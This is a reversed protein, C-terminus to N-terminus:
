DERKEVCRPLGVEDGDWEIVMRGRGGLGECASKRTDWLDFAVSLYRSEKNGICPCPQCSTWYWPVMHM